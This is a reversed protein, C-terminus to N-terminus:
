QLSLRRLLIEPSLASCSSQTDQLLNMSLPLLQDTQFHIRIIFEAEPMSAKLPNAVNPSARLVNARADTPFIDNNIRFWGVDKSSSIDESTTKMRVVEPRIDKLIRAIQVIKHASSFMTKKHLLLIAALERSVLSYRVGEPDLDSDKFTPPLSWDKGDEFDSDECLSSISFEVILHFSSLLHGVTHNGTRYELHVFRHM